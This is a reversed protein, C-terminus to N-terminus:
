NQDNKRRRCLSDLLRASVAKSRATLVVVSGDGKLDIKEPKEGKTTNLKWIVEQLRGLDSDNGVAPKLSNVDLPMYGLQAMVQQWLHPLDSFVNM